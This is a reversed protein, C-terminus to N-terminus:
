AVPATAPRPSLRPARFLATAGFRRCLEALLVPLLVGGVTGVILHLTPNDTHLGKQLAIRLGASAITHAVYIELSDVGLRRLVDTGPLRSLLVALALAAAIGSLAVALAEPPTLVRGGWTAATVVGFGLTTLAGLMTAPARGLAGVVGRADLVAGLAYYVGYNRAQFLPSWTGISIRGETAWFAAFAALAAVPGLGLRRLAYYLLTIILLAYLFWFQMIPEVLIGALDSLSAPRNTYRSLVVQILTQLTSWILYPYALAALTATVFGVPALGIRRGAFLGSLLFFLPMHFGYIWADVAGAAGGKGLIGSTQLGRITHGLVVLVIGLGKAFDVWAVRPQSM